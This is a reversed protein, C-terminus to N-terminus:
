PRRRSARPRRSRRRFRSAVRGRSRIWASTTGLRARGPASGGYSAAWVGDDAIALDDVDPDVRIPGGVVTASAPDVVSVTGDENGAWLRGFGYAIVSFKGGIAIRATVTGSKADISEISGDNNAVWVTEGVVTVGIPAGPVPVRATVRRSAPDIASVYGEFNGVWIAGAGAAIAYPEGGVDIRADERRSALDVHSVIGDGYSTVWLTGGSAIASIPVRGVRVATPPGPPPRKAVSFRRIAVRSRAAGAVAAARV